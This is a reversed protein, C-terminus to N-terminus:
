KNVTIEKKYSESLCLRVNDHPWSKVRKNDSASYYSNPHFALYGEEILRATINRRDGIGQVRDVSFLPVGSDKKEFVPDRFISLINYAVRLEEGM